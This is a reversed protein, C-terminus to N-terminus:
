DRLSNNYWQLDLWKVDINFTFNGSNFVADFDGGDLAKGFASEDASLLENDSHSLSIDEISTSPLPDSSGVM